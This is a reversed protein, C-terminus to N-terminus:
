FLEGQAPIGSLPIEASAEIKAVSDELLGAWKMAQALLQHRFEIVGTETNIVGYAKEKDGTDDSQYNDIVIVSYRGCDYLSNM